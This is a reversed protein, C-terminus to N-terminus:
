AVFQLALCALQEVGTIHTRTESSSLTSADAPGRPLLAVSQLTVSGSATNGAAHSVFNTSTAYGACDFNDTHRSNGVVGNGTWTVNLTISAPLGSGSPKGPCPTSLTTHLAASQLDKSVTFNSPDITFCGFGTIAPTTIQLTVTTGKTVSDQGEDPQFSSVNRNVSIVFQPIGGKATPAGFTASASTDTFTYQGPGLPGGGKGGPVPGAGTGAATAALALALSGSVVISVILVLRRLLTMTM